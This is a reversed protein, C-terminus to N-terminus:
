NPNSKPEIKELHEIFVPLTQTREEFFYKESFLLECIPTLMWLASVPQRSVQGGM